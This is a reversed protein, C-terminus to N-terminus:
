DNETSKKKLIYKVKGYIDGELSHPTSHQIDHWPGLKSTWLGNKLQRAAHTVKGDLEYLAIIDCGNVNDDNDDNDRLRYGHSLFFQLFVETRESIEIDNSWLMDEERLAKEMPWIWKNKYGLAWAICNYDRTDPSTIRFAPDQLLSPFWNIIMETEGAM